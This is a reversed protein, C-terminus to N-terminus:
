RRRKVVAAAANVAAQKLFDMKQDKAQSTITAAIYFLMPGEEWILDIEGSERDIGIGMSQNEIQIPEIILGQTLLTRVEPIKAPDDFLFISIGLSEVIKEFDSGAAPIFSANASHNEGEFAPEVHPARFAVTFGELAEPLRDGPAGASPAPGPTAPPTNIFYLIAGVTIAAAIAVIVWLLTQNMLRRRM